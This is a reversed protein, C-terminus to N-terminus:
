GEVGNGRTIKREGWGGGEGIEREFRASEQGNSHIESTATVKKKNQDQDPDQIHAIAPEIRLSPHIQHFIKQNPQSQQLHFNHTDQM